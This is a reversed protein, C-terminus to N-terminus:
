LRSILQSINRDKLFVRNIEHLSGITLIIHFDGDRYKGHVLSGKIYIFLDKDIIEYSYGTYAIASSSISGSMKITQDSQSASFKSIHVENISLIKPRFLWTIFGGVVGCLLLSVLLCIIIGIPKISDDSTM